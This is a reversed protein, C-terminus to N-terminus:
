PLTGGYFCALKCYFTKSVKSKETTLFLNKISRNFTTTQLAFKLGNLVVFTICKLSAWHSYSNANWYCLLLHYLLIQIGNCVCCMLQTCLFELVFLFRNVCHWLNEDKEDRVVIISNNWLLISFRLTSQPPKTVSKAWYNSDWRRTDNKVVRFGEM